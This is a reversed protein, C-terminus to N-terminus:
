ELPASSNTTATSDRVKAMNSWTSGKKLLKASASATESGESRARERGQAALDSHHPLWWHTYTVSSGLIVVGGAIVRNLSSSAGVVVRGSRTM